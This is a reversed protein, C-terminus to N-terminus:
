VGQEFDHRPSVLEQLNGIEKKAAGIEKWPTWSTEVSELKASIAALSQSMDSVSRRSKMSTMALDNQLAEHEEELTDIRRRTEQYQAAVVKGQELEKQMAAQEEQLRQVQLAAEMSKEVEDRMAQKEQQVTTLRAEARAGREVERRMAGLESELIRVQFQSAQLQSLLRHSQEREMALQLQAKDVLSRSADRERQLVACQKQLAAIQANQEEILEAAHAHANRAVLESGARSMEQHEEMLKLRQRLLENQTALGVNEAVKRREESLQQRLAKIQQARSEKGACFFDAM